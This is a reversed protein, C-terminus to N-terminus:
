RIRMGIRSFDPQFRTADWSMWVFFAKGVLNKEPVFGWSRSDESNDRNDGMVFYHGPPVRERLDPELRRPVVLIRHRMDELRETMELTPVGLAGAGYGTYLGMNETTVRKGNLYLIKNEYRIEDGPLGM